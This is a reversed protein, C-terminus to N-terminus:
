IEKAVVYAPEKPEERLRMIEQYNDICAKAVSKSKSKRAVQYMHQELDPHKRIRTLFTQCDEPSLQGQETLYTEIDTQM